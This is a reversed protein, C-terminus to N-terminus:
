AWAASGCAAAGHLGPYQEIAELLSRMEPGSRAFDRGRRRCQQITELMLQNFAATESLNEKASAAGLRKPKRIKTKRQLRRSEIGIVAAITRAAVM